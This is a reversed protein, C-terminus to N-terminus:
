WRNSDISYRWISRPNQMYVVEFYKGADKLTIFKSLSPFGYVSHYVVFSQLVMVAISSAECLDLFYLQIIALFVDLKNIRRINLSNLLVVPLKFSSSQTPM